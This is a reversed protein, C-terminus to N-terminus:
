RTLALNWADRTMTWVIHRGSESPAEPDREIVGSRAFGLKDPVAASAENAEDVQLHVVDIGEIAFAAATLGLTIETAFGRRVYNAHIWYGVDLTGPGSRRHLGAGGVVEAGLGVGYVVDGGEEWERTWEDILRARDELSAPEFKIWSMWPRLHDISQEIAASLLSADETRWRRLTLRVTEVLEPLILDDHSSTPSDGETM